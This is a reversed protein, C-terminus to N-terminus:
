GSLPPSEKVIEIRLATLKRIRKGKTIATRMNQMLFEDSSRLKTAITPPKLTIAVAIM